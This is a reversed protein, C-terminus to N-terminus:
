IFVGIIILQSQIAVIESINVEEIFNPMNQLIFFTMIPLVFILFISLSLIILALIHLPKKFDFDM